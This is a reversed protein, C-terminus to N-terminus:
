NARVAFVSASNTVRADCNRTSALHDGPQRLVFRITRGAGSTTACNVCPLEYPNSYTDFVWEWVNGALEM